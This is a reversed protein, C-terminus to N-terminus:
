HRVNVIQCGVGGSTLFNHWIGHDSHKKGVMKLNDRPDNVADGYRVPADPWVGVTKPIEFCDTGERVDTM